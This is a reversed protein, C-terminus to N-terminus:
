THTPNSQKVQKWEKGMRIDWTGYIACLLSKNNHSKKSIHTRSPVLISNIAKNKTFIRWYATAQCSQQRSGKIPNVIEFTNNLM